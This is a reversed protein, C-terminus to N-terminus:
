QHTVMNDRLGCAVSPVPQRGLEDSGGDLLEAEDHEEIAFCAGPIGNTNRVVFKM